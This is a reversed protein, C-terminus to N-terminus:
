LGVIRIPTEQIATTMTRGGDPPARVVAPGSDRGLCKGTSDLCPPINSQADDFNGM